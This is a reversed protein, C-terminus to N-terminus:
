FTLNAHRISNLRSSLDYRSFLLYISWSLCPALIQIDTFGLDHELALGLHQSLDPDRGFFLGPGHSMGYLGIVM